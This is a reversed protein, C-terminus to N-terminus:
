GTIPPIDDSGTVRGFAAVVGFAALNTVLYAILYFVVSTVGLLASRSFGRRCRRDPYLRCPRDLFLGAPAQYEEAGPRDPQGPDDHCRRAFGAGSWDAVVTRDAPLSGVSVRLLVAFGAAKSATSLFGAVPTPAGEYVDPAWFHFPVASIKFGFGVLVLLLSGIVPASPMSGRQFAQAIAYLNTTGSFGYLLSFGYLMIASTM